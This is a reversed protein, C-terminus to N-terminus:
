SAAEEVPKTGHVVGYLWAEAGFLAATFGLDGGLTFGFFPLGQAMCTLLGALTNDYLRQGDGIIGSYELWTAFNTILYFQMSGLFTVVAIRSISDKGRLMIRGLLMYIIFSVYVSINFPKWNFVQNLVVDSVVLSLIQAPLAIWIPARAGGFISLSGNAAFNPPRVGYPILRVFVAVIAYALTLGAAFMTRSVGPKTPTEPRAEEIQFRSM